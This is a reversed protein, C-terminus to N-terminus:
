ILWVYGRGDNGGSGGGGGSSGGFWGRRSGGSSPNTSTFPSFMTELSYFYFLRKHVKEYQFYNGNSNYECYYSAQTFALSFRICEHWRGRDATVFKVM